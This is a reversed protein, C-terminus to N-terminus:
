KIHAFSLFELYMDYVIEWCWDVDDPSDRCHDLIKHLERPVNDQYEKIEEAKFGWVFERCQETKRHDEIEM